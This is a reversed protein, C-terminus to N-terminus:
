PAAETVLRRLNQLCRFSSEERTYGSIPHPELTLPGDYGDAVLAALQDHWAVEGEGLLRWPEEGPAPSRVCDKVHVNAIRGRLARYGAPYALDGAVHANGPDWIALCNPAGVAALLAATEGGTAANCTHENEVALVCGAAAATEAASRLYSVVGGYEQETLPQRWFSFARVMGAGIARAVALARALVELQQEAEAGSAFYRPGAPEPGHQRLPAKFVPSALCEVALRRREVALRAREVQVPTLDVVNVGWLTRLEVLPLGWEKALDLARELDESIEDSIISLRFAM